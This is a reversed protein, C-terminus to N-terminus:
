TWERRLGVSKQKLHIGHCSLLKIQEWGIYNQPPFTNKSLVEKIAVVVINAKGDPISIM